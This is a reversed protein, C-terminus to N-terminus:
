QCVFFLPALPLNVFEFLWIWYKSPLFREFRFFYCLKILHNFGGVGLIVYKPSLCRTKYIHNRRLFIMQNGHGSSNLIFCNFIISNFLHWYNPPYPEIKLFISNDSGGRAHKRRKSADNSTVYVLFGGFSELLNKLTIKNQKPSFRSIM